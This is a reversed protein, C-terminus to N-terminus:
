NKTRPKKIISKGFIFDTVISDSYINITSVSEIPYKDTIFLYKLKKNDKYFDLSYTGSVHWNKMDFSYNKKQGPKLKVINNFHSGWSKVNISDVLIETHNVIEFQAKSEYKYRLKGADKGRNPPDLAFHIGDNKVILSDKFRGFSHTIEDQLIIISDEMKFRGYSVAGTFMNYDVAKFTGNERFTIDIGEENFYEGKFIVPSSNRWQYYIFIILISSLFSILWIEVGSFAKDINKFKITFPILLAILSLVLGTLFLFPIWIFTMLGGVTGFLYILGFSFASLVTFLVRFFTKM